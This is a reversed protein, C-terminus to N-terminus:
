SPLASSRRQRWVRNLTADPIAVQCECYAYPTSKEGWTPTEGGLGNVRGRAWWLSIAGSANRSLANQSILVRFPSCICAVAVSSSSDAILLSSKRNAIRRSAPPTLMMEAAPGSPGNPTVAVATVDNVASGGLTRHQKFRERVNSAATLSVPLNPTFM